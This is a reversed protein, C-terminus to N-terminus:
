RSGEVYAFDATLRTDTKVRFVREFIQRAVTAARDVDREFDVQIFERVPGDPTDEVTYSVGSGELLAKIQEYYPEAWPARPFDLQVGKTIEDKVYKSFEVFRQDGPLEFVVFGLDYGRVLLIDICRRLDNLTIEELHETARPRRYLFVGALVAAVAFLLGLVIPPTM